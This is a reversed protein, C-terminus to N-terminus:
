LAGIGLMLLTWGCVLQSALQKGHASAHTQLQTAMHRLEYIEQDLPPRAARTPRQTDPQQQLAQQKTPSSATNTTSKKFPAHFAEVLRAVQLCSCPNCASVGSHKWWSQTHTGNPRPHQLPCLAATLALVTGCWYWPTGPLCVSDDWVLVLFYWSPLCQRGVGTCALVVDGNLMGKHARHRPM